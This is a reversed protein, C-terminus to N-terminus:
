YMRKELSMSPRKINNATDRIIEYVFVVVFTFKIVGVLFGSIDLLMALRILYAGVAKRAWRKPCYGVM